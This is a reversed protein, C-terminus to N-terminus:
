ARARRVRQWVEYLARSPNLCGAKALLLAGAVYRGDRFAIESFRFAIVAERKRVTARRYPYRGRAGELVRQVNMWLAPRLSKQGEHIRYKFGYCPVHAAPFLELVRLWMDHDEAHRLTEDFLGARAFAEGRVMVAAPPFCQEVLLDDATVRPRHPEALIPCKDSNDANIYYGKDYALGLEPREIMAEALHALHGPLWLDDADLFAVLPQTAARLCRNRAHSASRDEDPGKALLRVPPGYSAVIEASGDTSGDDAVLVELPGAYDQALV